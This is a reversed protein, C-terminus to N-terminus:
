LTMTQRYWSITRELGRELSVGPRWNLLKMSTEIDAVPAVEGPRDPLAGFTPQIGHGVLSAITQGIESISVLKGSGVEVVQGVANESKLAALLADTVDDIFIVDVLRSGSSLQPSEGRLLTTIVYPILKTVLQPGPGYTLFIRLSVVPLGYSEHFMRSYVTGVWKSASYPSHPLTTQGLPAPEEMSSSYIFRECGIESAATLLRITTEANDVFTPIVLELNRRGDPLGALHFIYDPRVHELIRHAEADQALQAQWWKVGSETTPRAVRSVGHVEAGALTLRYCLASGLFGSAGTVLVRKGHISISM